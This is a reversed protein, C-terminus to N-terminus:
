EKDRERERDWDGGIGSRLHAFTRARVRSMLHPDGEDDNTNALHSHRSTPRKDLPPPANATTANPLALSPLRSTPICALHPPFPLGNDCGEQEEAERRARRSRKVKERSM